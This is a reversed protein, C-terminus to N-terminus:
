NEFILLTPAGSSQEGGGGLSFEHTGPEIILFDLHKPMLGGIDGIGGVKTFQDTDPGNFKVGIPNGRAASDGGGRIFAIAFTKSDFTHTFDFTAGGVGSAPYQLYGDLHQPQRKTPNSFADFGVGDVSGGSYYGSGSSQGVSLDDLDGQHTINNTIASYYGAGQLTDNPGSITGTHRNPINNNISDYYGQDDLTDDPTDINGVGNDAINNVIASYYGRDDLTDTPGSITGDGNDPITNEISDYYGRGSLTDTPGAITGDGNKPITGTAQGDEAESTFIVGELVDAATADGEIGIKQLVM